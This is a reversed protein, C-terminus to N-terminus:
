PTARQAKLSLKKQTLAALQANLDAIEQDKRNSEQESEDLKRMLDAILANARDLKESDQDRAALLRDLKSVMEQMQREHAEGQRQLEIIMKSKEEPTM